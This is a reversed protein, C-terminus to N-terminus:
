AEFLVAFSVKLCMFTGPLLGPLLCWVSFTIWHAQQTSGGAVVWPCISKGQALLAWSQTVLIRQLPCLPCLFSFGNQLSRCLLGRSTPSLHPAGCPRCCWHLHSLIHLSASCGFARQGLQKSVYRLNRWLSVALALNNLSISTLGPILAASVSKEKAHGPGRYKGEMQKEVWRINILMAVPPLEGWWRPLPLLTEAPLWPSAPLWPPLLQSLEPLFVESAALSLAQARPWSVSPGPDKQQDLWVGNFIIESHFGSQHM